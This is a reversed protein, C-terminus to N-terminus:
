RMPAELLVPQVTGPNKYESEFLVVFRTDKVERVILSSAYHKQPVSAVVEETWAAKGARLNALSQHYLLVRAPKAWSGPDLLVVNVRGTAANYAVGNGNANWFLEPGVPVNIWKGGTFTYLRHQVRVRTGGVENPRVILGAGDSTAGVNITSHGPTSGGATGATLNAPFVAASADAHTM